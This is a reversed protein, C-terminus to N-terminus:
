LFQRLLAAFGIWVLSLGGLLLALAGGIQPGLERAGAPGRNALSCSPLRAFLRAYWAPARTVWVYCAYLLALGMPIYVIEM